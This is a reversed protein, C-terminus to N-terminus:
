FENWVQEPMKNNKSSVTTYSLGWTLHGLSTSLLTTQLELVSTLRLGSRLINTAAQAVLLLRKAKTKLQLWLLLLTDPSLICRFHCVRYNCKTRKGVAQRGCDTTWITSPTSRGEAQAHAHEHMNRPLFSVRVLSGPMFSKELRAGLRLPRKMNPWHLSQQYGDMQQARALHPQPVQFTPCINTKSFHEQNLASYRQLVTSPICWCVMRQRRNVSAINFIVQLHALRTVRPLTCLCAHFPYVVTM